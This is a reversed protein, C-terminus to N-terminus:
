YASLRRRKQRDLALVAAAAIGFLALTAPEPVPAPGAGALPPGALLLTNLWQTYDDGDVRGDYNFDGRLWGHIAPDSLNLLGLLWYTYDDGNVVGDLNADGSYTYKLLVTNPTVTQGAFTTHPSDIGLLDLDANNIAALNYFDTRASYNDARGKTTVIGPGNWRAQDNGDVGNRGSHIQATVTSLLTGPAGGYDLILSNNNLDLTGTPATGGDVALTSLRSTAAPSNAVATTRITASAGAAIHLQNQRVYNATLGAGAQVDTTGSGSLNGVASGGAIQFTSNNEVDVHRSPVTSDTFPDTSGITKFSGAGSGILLRAGPSVTVAVGSTELTYSGPGSKTVQGNWTVADRVRLGSRPGSVDSFILAGDAFTVALVALADEPAAAHTAGAQFVVPRNVRGPGGLTAGLRVTVLNANPDATSYVASDIGILMTGEAVDLAFRSPDANENNGWFRGALTLTGSGTKTLVNGPDSGFNADTIDAVIVSADPSPPHGLVRLERAGNGALRLEDALIVPDDAALTLLGGLDIGGTLFHSAGLNAATRALEIRGGGPGVAFDNTLTFAQPQNAVFAFAAGPGDLTITGSGFSASFPADAANPLYRLPGATVTTGAHAIAAPSGNTFDMNGAGTKLLSGPGSVPGTCTLPQSVMITPTVGLILGAFETSLAVTPQKPPAALAFRVDDGAMPPLDGLWNGGTSWNPDATPTGNDNVGDWTIVAAALPAAALLVLLMGLFRPAAAPLLFFADLFRSCPAHSTTM